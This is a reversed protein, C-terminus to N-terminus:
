ASATRAYARISRQQAAPVPSAIAERALVVMTLFSAYHTQPLVKESIMSVLVWALLTIAFLAETDGPSARLRRQAHTVGSILAAVFLVLGVAGLDLLMEIYGNHAHPIVWGLALSVSATHSPGWFGEFGYGLFPRAGVYTMLESWIETRGTLTGVDAGSEQRGLLLAHKASDILDPGFVAVTIAISAMVLAVGLVRRKPVIYLAGFGLAVLVALISTRSRTLMILGFAAIATLTYFRRKDPMLRAAALSCFIAAACEQAHNNPHTLGMLRYGGDFPHFQGRIIELGLSVFLVTLCSLVTFSLVDTLTWSRAVAWAAYGLFLFVITRRAVLGPDDAWLASAAAFLMFAVLPVIVSRDGGLAPGNSEPLLGRREKWRRRATVAFAFVAFGIVALRRGTKGEEIGANANSLTAKLNTEESEKDARNNWDYPGAAAFLGFLILFALWPRRM